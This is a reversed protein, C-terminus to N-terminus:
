EVPQGVMSQGSVSQQGDSTSRGVVVRRRETKKHFTGYIM